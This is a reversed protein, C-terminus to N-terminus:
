SILVHRCLEVAILLKLFSAEIYVFAVEDVANQPIAIKEVRAAVHLPFLRLKLVASPM